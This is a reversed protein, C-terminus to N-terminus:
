DIMAGASINITTATISAAMDSAAFVAANGVDELTAARGLLTASTMAGAIDDRGEMDRPLSEPVGGSRLTVVRIGYPGLEIALQRRMSEISELATILGGLYQGRDETGSGGFAMIVGSKQEMMHRAAAQATIFTAQVATSVPRLYDEVSMAAMPTGQVDGHQIVNLSIDLSGAESAVDDAHANVAQQNLADLIATEALGGAERIEAAVAQLPEPHRGALFVRAGERAFARAAAGGISGGGGYIIANRGNLLM